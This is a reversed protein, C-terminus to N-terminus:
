ESLLKLLRQTYNPAAMASQEVVVQSAPSSQMPSSSVCSSTAAVFILLPGILLGRLRQKVNRMLRQRFPSSAKFNM